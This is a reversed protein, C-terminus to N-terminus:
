CTRTTWGENGARVVSVFEAMDRAPFSPHVVLVHPAAAIMSVPAFSGIPDYQIKSNLGPNIFFSSTVVVLTYGDAPARAAAATGVNGAGGPINDIVFSVGEKRFAESTILRAITDNPGGPAYPVIIKIPRSPYVEARSEHPALGALSGAACLALFDRRALQMVKRWVEIRTAKGIRNGRYSLEIYPSSDIEDLRM